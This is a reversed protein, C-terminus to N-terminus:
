IDFLILNRNVSPGIKRILYSLEYNKKQKAFKIHKSLLHFTILYAILSNLGLVMGYIFFYFFSVDFKLM